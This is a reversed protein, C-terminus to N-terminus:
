SPDIDTNLRQLYEERTFLGNEVCLEFVAELAKSTQETIELEQLWGSTDPMPVLADTPLPIPSSDRRISVGRTASRHGALREPYPHHLQNRMEDMDQIVMSVSSTSENTRIASSPIREPQIGKPKNHRLDYITGLLLDIEDDSALEARIPSSSLARLEEIAQTETPDSTVVILEDGGQRQCLPIVRHKLAWAKSVLQNAKVEPRHVLVQHRPVGTKSALLNFIDATNLGFARNLAISLPEQNQTSQQLGQRLQDQDIIEAAFMLEGLRVQNM